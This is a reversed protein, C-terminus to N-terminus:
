LTEVVEQIKGVIRLGKQEIELSTCEVTNTIQFADLRLIFERETAVEVWETQPREVESCYLGEKSLYFDRLTM